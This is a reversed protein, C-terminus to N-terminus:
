LKKTKPGGNYIYIMKREKSETGTRSLGGEIKTINHGTDILGKVATTPNKVGAERAEQATIRGCSQLLDLLLQRQTKKAVLGVVKKAQHINKATETTIGLRSIKKAFKTWDQVPNGIKIIKIKSDYGVLYYHYDLHIVLFGKNLYLEIIETRSENANKPKEQKKM